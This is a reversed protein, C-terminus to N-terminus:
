DDILWADAGYGIEIKDEKLRVIYNDDDLFMELPITQGMKEAIDPFLEVFRKFPLQLYENNVARVRAKM